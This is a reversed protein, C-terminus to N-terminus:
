EDSGEDDVQVGEVASARQSATLIEAARGVARIFDLRRSVHLEAIAEVKSRLDRSDPETARTLAWLEEEASEITRERADLAAVAETELAELDARQEPTLELHDAHDLFFGSAGVHYLHTIGPFGPLASRMAGAWATPGRGMMAVRAQTSPGSGDDAGANAMAEGMPMRGATPRGSTGMQDGMGMSSAGMGMQDGMGMSSAGMRMPDGMGMASAGMRMQDGMGMSSAGMGMPDGMGMASAGMRMPDGMGMSSAGMGMPDGMGMGGMPAAGTQDIAPDALSALRQRQSDTLLRAARAVSQMFDVRRKVTLRGIARAQREVRAIRPEAAATAQWLLEETAEIERDVASMALLAEERMAGLRERQEQSLELEAAHELFFSSQGWHLPAEPATAMDMAEQGGDPAHGMMGRGPSPMMMGGMGMGGMGMGGGAMGGGMGPDGM